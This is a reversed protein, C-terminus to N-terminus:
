CVCMCVRAHVCMSLEKNYPPEQGQSGTTVKEDRIEAKHNCGGEGRRILATPFPIGPVSVPDFM